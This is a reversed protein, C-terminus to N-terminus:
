WPSAMLGVGPSGSAMTGPRMAAPSAAEAETCPALRRPALESRSMTTKPRAQARRTPSVRLGPVGCLGRGSFAPSSHRARRSLIRWEGPSRLVASSRPLSCLVICFSAATNRVWSVRSSPQLATSWHTAAKLSMLTLSLDSTQFVSRISVSSSSFRSMLAAMVMCEASCLFSLLPAWELSSKGSRRSSSHILCVRPKKSSFLAPSLLTSM